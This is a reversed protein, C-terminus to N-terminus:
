RPSRTRAKHAALYHQSRLRCRDHRYRRRASHRDALRHREPGLRARGRARRGGRACSLVWPLGQEPFRLGAGTSPLAVITITGDLLVMFFAGCLLAPARRRRPDPVASAVRGAPASSEM